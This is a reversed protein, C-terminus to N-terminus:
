NNSNIYGDWASSFDNGFYFPCSENYIYINYSKMNQYTGYNTRIKKILKTTHMDSPLSDEDKGDKYTYHGDSTNLVLNSSSVNEWDGAHIINSYYFYGDDKYYWGNLGNRCAATFQSWTYWTNGDQSFETKNLIDTESFDIRVRVYEDVYGSNIVAVSKEYVLTPTQTQETTITPFHEIIKSSTDLAVTYPNKLRENMDSLYSLTKSVPSCEMGFALLVAAGTALLIGAKTMRKVKM